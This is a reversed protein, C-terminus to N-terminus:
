NGVPPAVQNSTSAAAGSDGSGGSGRRTDVVAGDAEELAGPMPEAVSFDGADGATSSPSDSEGGVSCAGVLALLALAATAAVARRSRARTTATRTATAPRPTSTSMCIRRPVRGILERRQLPSDM